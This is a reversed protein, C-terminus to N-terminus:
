SRCQFLCLFYTALHWLYAAHGEFDCFVQIVFSIAVYLQYTGTVASTVVFSLASNPFSVAQPFDQGSLGQLSISSNLAQKHYSNRISSVCRLVTTHHAISCYLFVVFLIINTSVDTKTANTILM